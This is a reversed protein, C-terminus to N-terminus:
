VIASLSQLDRFDEFKLEKVNYPKGKSRLRNSRAIGFINIWDQM